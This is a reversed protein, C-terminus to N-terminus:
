KEKTRQDLVLELTIFPHESQKPFFIEGTARYGRAAYFSLNRKNIGFTDLRLSACEIKKAHGEAFDMLQRAIGQGQYEPHVALRHVYLHKTTQTLWNIPTYEADMDTRLAICGVVRGAVRYVNLVEAQLDSAFAAKNPYHANWQYIGQEILHTACARTIALLTDLDSQKAPSIM